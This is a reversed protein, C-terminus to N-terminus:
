DITLNITLSGVRCLVYRGNKEKILMLAAEKENPQVPQNITFSNVRSPAKTRRQLSATNNTGNNNLNLRSLDLVDNIESELRVGGGGGGDELSYDLNGNM